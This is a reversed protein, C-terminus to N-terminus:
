LGVDEVGCGCAALWVGCFVLSAWAVVRASRCVDKGVWWCPMNQRRGRGGLWGVHRCLSLLFSLFFDDYGACFKM